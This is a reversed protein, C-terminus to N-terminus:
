FYYILGSENVFVQNDGWVLERIKEFVTDRKLFSAFFYDKEKHVIKIANPIVRATKKKFAAVISKIDLAIQYV